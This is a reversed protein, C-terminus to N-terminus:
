VVSVSEFDDVTTPLGVRMMYRAFSQSVHERYPPNLRLRDGADNAFNELYAKPLTYLHHYDVLSWEMSPSDSFERLVTYSPFLNSAVKKRFKPSKIEPKRDGEARLLARYSIVVALLVQDVKAHELDCTQTLVILTQPKTDGEVEIFDDQEVFNELHFTPCNFFIDGQKLTSTRVVEYWSDPM